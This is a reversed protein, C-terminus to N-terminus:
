RLGTQALRKQATERWPADMEGEALARAFLEASDADVMGGESLTRAEAAMAALGPEFRITVAKRWASAAAELDGRGEEANGLLVYGQRATESRQDLSALRERLTRILTDAEAVRQDAAAMRASLPMAPMRPQGGILYLAVAALPVAFPVAWAVWRRGPRPEVPALEAAALLRRQVELQAGAHESAALRGEALDRDLAALQARHLGLAADRRDRGTRGSHSAVAWPTLALLVLVVAALGTMM